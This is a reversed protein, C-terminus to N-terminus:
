SKLVNTFSDYGKGIKRASKEKTMLEAAFDPMTLEEGLAKAMIPAFKIPHATELFVGKQGNKVEM